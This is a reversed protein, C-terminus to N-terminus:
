YVKARPVNYKLEGSVCRMNWVLERATSFNCWTESETSGDM